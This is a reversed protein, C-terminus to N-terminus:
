VFPEVAYPVQWAARSTAGVVTADSKRAYDLQQLVTECPKGHKVRLMGGFMGPNARCDGSLCSGGGFM